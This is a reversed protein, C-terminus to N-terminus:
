DDIKEVDTYLVAIGGWVPMLQRHTSGTRTSTKVYPKCGVLAGETDSPLVRAWPMIVKRLGITIFAILGTATRAVGIPDGAM